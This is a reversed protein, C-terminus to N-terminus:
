RERNAMDDSASNDREQSLLGTFEKRLIVFIEIASNGEINKPADDNEETSEKVSYEGRKCQLM